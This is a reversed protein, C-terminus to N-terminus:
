WLYYFYIINALKKHPTKQPMDQNRTFHMFNTKTQTKNESSSSFKLEQKVKLSCLGKPLCQINIVTDNSQLTQSYCLQEHMNFTKTM